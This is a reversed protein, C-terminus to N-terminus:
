LSLEKNFNKYLEIERKRFKKNVNILSSEINLKLSKNFKIKYKSYDKIKLYLLKQQKVTLKM